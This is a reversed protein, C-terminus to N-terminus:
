YYPTHGFEEATGTVAFAMPEPATASEFVMLRVQDFAVRLYYPRGAHVFTIPVGAVLAATASDLLAALAPTKDAPVLALRPMARAAAAEAAIRAHVDDSGGKAAKKRSSAKGM